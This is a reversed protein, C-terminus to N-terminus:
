NSNYSVKLKGEILKKMWWFKEDLSDQLFRNVERCKALDNQNLLVFIGEFLHPFRMRMNELPFRMMSVTEEKM